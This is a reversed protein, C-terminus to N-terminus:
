KRLQTILIPIIKNGDGKTMPNPLQELKKLEMLADKYTDFISVSPHKIGGGWDTIAWAKKPKLMKHQRM